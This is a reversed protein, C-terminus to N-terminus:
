LHIYNSEDLWYIFSKDLTYQYVLKISEDVVQGILTNTFEDLRHIFHTM